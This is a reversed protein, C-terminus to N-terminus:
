LVGHQVIPHVVWLDTNYTEVSLVMLIYILCLVASSVHGDSGGSPIVTQEFLLMGFSLPLGVCRPTGEPM